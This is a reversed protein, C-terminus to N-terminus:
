TINGRKLGETVYHGRRETFNLIRLSKSAQIKDSGKTDLLNYNVKVNYPGHVMVNYPGHVM